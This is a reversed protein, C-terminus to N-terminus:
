RTEGLEDYGAEGALGEALSIRKPNLLAFIVGAVPSLLLLWGSAQELFGGSRFSVYGAAGASATGLFALAGNALRHAWTPLYRNHIM